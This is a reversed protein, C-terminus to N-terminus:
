VTIEKPTNIVSQSPTTKLVEITHGQLSNKIDELHSILVITSFEKILNQLVGMTERIGAEDLNGFDGEDILLTQITSFEQAETHPIKNMIRSIAVRLAM